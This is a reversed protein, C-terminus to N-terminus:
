QQHCLAAEGVWQGVAANRQETWARADFPVPAAGTGRKESHVRVGRVVGVKAVEPEPLELHTGYPVDATISPHGPDVLTVPLGGFRIRQARRRGAHNRM